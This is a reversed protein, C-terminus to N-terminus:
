MLHVYSKIAAGNNRGHVSSWYDYTKQEWHADLAGNDKNTNNFEAATWNNDADTFSCQQVM